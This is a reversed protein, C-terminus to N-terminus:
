KGEAGDFKRKDDQALRLAARRLIRRKFCPDRSEGEVESLTVRSSLPLFCHTGGRDNQASHSARLRLIRGGWM